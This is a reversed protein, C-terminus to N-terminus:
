GKAEAKEAELAEWIRFQRAVEARLEPPDSPARQSCVLMVMAVMERKPQNDPSIRLDACVDDLLKTLARIQKEDYNGPPYKM